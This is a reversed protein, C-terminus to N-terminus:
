PCVQMERQAGLFAREQSTLASALDRGRSAADLGAWTAAVQAAIHPPRVYSGKPRTM